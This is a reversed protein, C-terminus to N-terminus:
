SISLSVQESLSKSIATKSGGTDFLLPITKGNIVVDILFLNLFEDKSMNIRDVYSSYFIKMENDM